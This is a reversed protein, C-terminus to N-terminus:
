VIFLKGEYCSLRVTRLPHHTGVSCADDELHRVRTVACRTRKQHCMDYGEVIFNRRNGDFVEVVFFLLVFM